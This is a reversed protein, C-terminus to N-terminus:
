YTQTKLWDHTEEFTPMDNGFKPFWEDLAQGMGSHNRVMYYDKATIMIENGSKIAGNIDTKQYGDVINDMGMDYDIKAKDYSEKYGPDDPLHRSARAQLELWGKYGERDSEVFTGMWEYLNEYLDKQKPSWLFQYKGIPFVMYGEGYRNTSSFDGTVFVSNSRAPYGFKKTFRKDLDNHIDIHTDTPRRNKRIRKKVFDKENRRGSYMFTAESKGKQKPAWEKLFPQCEKHILTIMDYFSLEKAESIYGNLRM